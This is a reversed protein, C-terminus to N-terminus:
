KADSAEASPKPKPSANPRRKRISVVGPSVRLEVTRVGLHRRHFRLQVGSDALAFFSRRLQQSLGKPTQCAPLPGLLELLESATGSWQTHYRLLQLVAPVVPHPTPMIGFADRIEDEDADLSPSAAIAFALADPLRGSPAEIKPLRRLATSVAFCLSGLIAPFAQRLNSLLETEARRKEPPLPPLHLTFAREALEPPISWTETATLLVPRRHYQQLPETESHHTERLSAGLGSSLRCLADPLQPPLTSIHDFALIWNQRAAALLDRVTGPVPTLPSASPDILSRLVRAAFTKGSSPPGQLILIPFPGSPRLASLLWALCRLWAPHSPLNLCARLAAFAPGRKSAVPEPLPLTSRSTQFLANEGSTVKWGDASIEIFRRDSDALDLLIQQPVPDAGRSGVRRWVALGQHDDLHRAQAELHHLLVHFAFPSPLCDFADFYHYFFWERYAPSRVPLVFFGKTAPDRLRVFAQGDAATFPEGRQAIKLLRALPSPSHIV